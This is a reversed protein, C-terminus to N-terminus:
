FAFYFRHHLRCRPNFAAGCRTCQDECDLYERITLETGCAGCMIARADGSGSPWPLIQHGALADHCEKCAYYEDCCSM